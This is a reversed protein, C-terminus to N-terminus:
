MMCVRYQVKLKMTDNFIFNKLFQVVSPTIKFQNLTMTQAFVLSFCIYVLHFFKTHSKKKEWLM